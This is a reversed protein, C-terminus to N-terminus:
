QMLNSLAEALRVNFDELSSVDVVERPIWNLHRVVKM